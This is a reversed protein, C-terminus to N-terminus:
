LAWYKKIADTNASDPDRLINGIGAKTFDTALGDVVPDTPLQVMLNLKSGRARHIYELILWCLSDDTEADMAFHTPIWLDEFDKSAIKQRFKEVMEAIGGEDIQGTPVSMM